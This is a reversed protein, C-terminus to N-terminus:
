EPHLQLSLLWTDASRNLGIDTFHCGDYRLEDSVLIDTDPGPYIRNRVNVLERQAQQVESSRRGYCYTAVAVYIPASVGHTHVSRVMNLFSIRYTLSDTGRVADAEGQQWLLHTPQLGAASLGAVADLLRSHLDGGSSWRAIESGGVGITAFVVKDAFRSEIIREGLRTWVSGGGGDAGPMPDAARYCRGQYFSFVAGAPRYRTQGYNAANSQGFALIILTNRGRLSTCAIPDRPIGNIIPQGLLIEYKIARLIQRCYDSLLVSLGLALIM